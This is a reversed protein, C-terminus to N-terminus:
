ATEELQRSSGIAADLAEVVARVPKRFYLGLASDPKVARLYAYGIGGFHLDYDYGPQQRGLHRHLAVAYLLYQLVYDHRQMDDHLASDDYDAARNSLWNSKWDFLYYRDQHCAVLDVFGSLFGHLQQPSLRLLRDAYGRLELDGHRRLVDALRQPAIPGVDLFFQWEPARRQPPIECLRLETGPWRVQVIDLLMAAVAATPDLPAPHASAVLLNHRRLTREAVALAAAAPEAAAFEFHELAEHLCTGAAAGRAFAFLETPETPAPLATPDDLPAELAPEAHDRLELQDQARALLATFSTITYPDLPRTPFPRVAVEPSSAPGRLLATPAAPRTLVVCEIKGGSAKAVRQADTPWEALRDGCRASWGAPDQDDGRHLLWALASHEADKAAADYVYLRRRARTLAVYCLRLDEALQVEARRQALQQERDESVSLWYDFGLGADNPALFRQGKPVKAQWLFPCFVVEYELGKSGHVTVIRVADADSELRLERQRGDIDEKRSQERLLWQLLAEPGLHRHHEAHQLLEALQLYNTLRREGDARQLLRSELALQMRLDEFMCLIGDQQWRRRWAELQQLAAQQRPDADRDLRQVTALGEGWLVTTMAARLRRLDGPHVLASLLLAFDQVEDTAFIDGASGIVAHVGVDRLARQAAAADRNSRTLIAIDSARLPRDDLRAGSQLLAACEAAVDALISGQLEGKDRPKLEGKQNTTPPLCRLQLPGGRVGDISRAAADIAPQVAPMDINADFFPQHAAFLQQVGHVLDPHSRFNRDLTWAQQAKGRARLYAGLDAGRFGYISQKPDGVLFLRQGAFCDFFIDSQLQDTDQFEDILAVQWQQQVAARLAPGTTPNGLTRQLRVLLDQFTLVRSARKQRDFRDAMDLLLQRRLEVGLTGSAVALRDCALFYPDEAAALRSQKLLQDDLHHPALQLLLELAALNGVQLMGQLRAVWPGAATAFEVTANKSYTYSELKRLLDEPQFSVTLEGLLTEVTQLADKSPPLPQLATGPCRQWDKFDKVLAEPLLKERAAVVAALRGSPYLVSRVADQAATLLLPAEDDVFDTAFSNGSEFAGDDLVRKCFGHITAVTMTDFRRLAERLVAAGREGHQQGLQRLFDDEAPAGCCAALAAGLAMRLRAKLEDTAAVTFTVVLLQDIREVQGELLLRLVLGAITYTKGTGASAELLVVPGALPSQMIAFPETM